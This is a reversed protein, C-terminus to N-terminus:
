NNEINIKEFTIYQESLICKLFLHMFLFIYKDKVVSTVLDEKKWQILGFPTTLRKSWKYFDVTYRYNYDVTGNADIQYAVSIVFYGNWGNDMFMSYAKALDGDKKVTYTFGHTHCFQELYEQLDSRESDLDIDESFRDM